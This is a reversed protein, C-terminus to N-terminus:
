SLWEEGMLANLGLKERRREARKRWSAKRDSKRTIRLEVPKTVRTLAEGEARADKSEDDISMNCRGRRQSFSSNEAILSFWFETVMSAPVTYFSEEELSLHDAHASIDGVALGNCRFFYRKLRRFEEQQQTDGDAARRMVQKLVRQVELYKSIQDNKSLGQELDEPWDQAHVQPIELVVRDAEWVGLSHSAEAPLPATETM